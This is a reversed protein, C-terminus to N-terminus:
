SKSFLPFEQLCETSIKSVTEHAAGVSVLLIQSLGYPFQEGLRPCKRIETGLM